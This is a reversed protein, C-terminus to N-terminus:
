PMQGEGEDEAARLMHNDHYSVEAKSSSDADVARSSTLNVSDGPGAQDHGYSWWHDRV